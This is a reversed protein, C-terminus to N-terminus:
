KEKDKNYLKVFSADQWNNFVDAVAVLVLPLTKVMLLSRCGEAAM